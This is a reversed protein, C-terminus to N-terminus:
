SNDELQELIDQFEWDYFEEECVPDGSAPDFEELYKTYHKHFLKWEDQSLKEALNNM